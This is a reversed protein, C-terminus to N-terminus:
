FKRVHAVSPCDVIKCTTAHLQYGERMAQLACKQAIRNEIYVRTARKANGDEAAYVRICELAQQLTM